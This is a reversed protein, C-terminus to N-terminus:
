KVIAITLGQQSAEYLLNNVISRVTVRQGIDFRAYLDCLIKTLDYKRDHHEQDDKAPPFVNVGVRSAEDFVIRVVESIVIYKPQSAIQRALVLEVQFAIRQCNSVKM